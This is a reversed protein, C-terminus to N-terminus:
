CTKCAVRAGAAAASTLAALRRGLMLMALTEHHMAASSARLLTTLSVTVSMCWAKSPMLSAAVPQTAAKAPWSGIGTLLCFTTCTRGLTPM